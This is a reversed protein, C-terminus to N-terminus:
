IKKIPSKLKAILTLMLYLYFFYPFYVCLVSPAETEQSKFKCLFHCHRVNSPLLKWTNPCFKKIYQRIYHVTRVDGRLFHNNLPEKNIRWKYSRLKWDKCTRKHVKVYCDVELFFKIKWTEEHIPNIRKSLSRCYFMCIFCQNSFHYTVTFDM